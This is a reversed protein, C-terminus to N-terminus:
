YRQLLGFAEEQVAEFEFRGDSPVLCTIALTFEKLRELFAFCKLLDPDSGSPGAMSLAQKLSEYTKWVVADKANEPNRCSTSGEGGSNSPRFSAASATAATQKIFEVLPVPAAGQSPSVELHCREIADLTESDRSLLIKARKVLGPYPGEAIRGLMERVAMSGLVVAVLRHLGDAVYVDAGSGQEFATPDISYLVINGLHTHPEPSALVELFYHCTATPSWSEATCYSRHLKPLKLNGRSLLEPLSSKFVLTHSKPYFLM